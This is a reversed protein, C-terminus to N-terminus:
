MRLSRTRTHTHVNFALFSRILSRMFVYYPSAAVVAIAAAAVAVAVTLLLVLLIPSVHRIKHLQGDKTSHELDCCPILIQLWHAHASKAEYATSVVFESVRGHGDLLHHLGEARRHQRLARVSFQLQELMNAMFVDNTQTVDEDRGQLVQVKHCLEETSVQMAQQGTTGKLFLKYLVKQVLDQTAELIHVRGTHNM